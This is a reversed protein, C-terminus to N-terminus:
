FNFTSFNSAIESDFVEKPFINTGWIKDWVMNYKMSFSGDLDFTLRYSNDASNKARECWSKAKKRAIRKYKAANKESQKKKAIAEQKQANKETVYNSNKKKTAM